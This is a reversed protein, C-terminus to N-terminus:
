EEEGFSVGPLLDSYRMPIEPLRSLPDIPKGEVLVGFHLHYGTTRGSDGLMGIVEGRTVEQGEKVLVLELHAYLSELSASHRIRVLRGFNGHWGAMIVEGGLIAHVPERPAAAIDIGAHFRVVDRELPDRRYGFGSTILGYALPWCPQRSDGAPPNYEGRSIAGRLIEMKQDIRNLMATVTEILQRGAQGKRKEADLEFEAAVRARILPGLSLRRAPQELYAYVTELFPDWAMEAAPGGSTRNLQFIRIAREVEERGPTQFIGVLYPEQAKECTIDGAPKEPIQRPPPSARVPASTPSTDPRFSTRCAYAGGLLGLTLWVTAAARLM